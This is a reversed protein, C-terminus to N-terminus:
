GVVTVWLTRNRVIATGGGAGAYRLSFTKAGPGPPYVLWGGRVLNAVGDDNGTGPATTRTVFSNSGTGLIQPSDPLSSAEYLRVQAENNQGPGTVRMEARAYVAVLAGEPVKVTVSPGGLDVPVNSTTSVEEPATASRVVDLKFADVSGAALKGLKVSKPAISRTHVANGAIDDAKVRNQGRLASATGALAAFLAIMAIV